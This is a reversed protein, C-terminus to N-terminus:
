AKPANSSHNRVGKNVNMGTVVTGDGGLGGYPGRGSRYTTQARSPKWDFRTNWSPKPGQGGVAAPATNYGRENWHNKSDSGHGHKYAM